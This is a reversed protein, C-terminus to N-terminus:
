ARNQPQSLDPKTRAVLKSRIHLLTIVAELGESVTHSEDLVVRWWNIAHLPSRMRNETDTLVPKTEGDERFSQRWFMSSHNFDSGLTAYTTVVQLLDFRATLCRLVTPLRCFNRLRPFHKLSISSM